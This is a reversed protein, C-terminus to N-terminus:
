KVPFNFVRNKGLAYVQTYDTFLSRIAENTVSLGGTYAGFAPLILKYKDMIFCDRQLFSGKHTIEVKPHFHGSMENIAGPVAQHRFIINELKYESFAPFREPVFHKDHNGKIWIPQYTDLQTFLTKAQDSLRDHGQADHFCDGLLIIRQVDHKKCTTLLRQLTEQSDYPPLFFGRKAFHSGKELHLDSVIGLRYVPWFVMGSPCLMLEHGAFDIKM